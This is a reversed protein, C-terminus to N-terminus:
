DLPHLATGTDLSDIFKKAKEDMSFFFSHFSSIKEDGKLFLKHAKRFLFISHFLFLFIKKRTAIDRFLSIWIIKYLLCKLIFGWKRWQKELFAGVFLKFNAVFLTDLINCYITFPLFPSQLKIEFLSPLRM